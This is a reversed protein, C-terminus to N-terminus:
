RKSRKGQRCLKSVKGKKSSPKKPKDSADSIEVLIFPDAEAYMKMANLEVIQDDDDWLVGNLSDLVAKAYNDVDGTPNTRETTKPKKVVCAVLVKLPGTRLEYPAEKRGAAILAKMENRFNKYTPLYYTGYKSVRPRSAPVPNIQFLYSSM